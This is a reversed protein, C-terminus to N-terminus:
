KMKSYLSEICYVHDKNISNKVCTPDSKVEVPVLLSTVTEAYTM